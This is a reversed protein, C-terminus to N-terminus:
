PALTLNPQPLNMFHCPQGLTITPRSFHNRHFFSTKLLIEFYRPAILGKLCNIDIINAVKHNIPHTSHTAPPSFPQAHAALMHHLQASAPRSPLPQVLRGSPPGPLALYPATSSRWTLALYALYPGPLGPLTGSLGPLAGPLGPLGPLGKGLPRAHTALYPGLYPTAGGEAKYLM